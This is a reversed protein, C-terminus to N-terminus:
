NRLPNQLGSQIIQQGLASGAGVMDGSRRQQGCASVAQNPPMVLLGHVDMGVDGARRREGTWPNFLWAVAGHYARWQIAHSPYPQEAGTAPDFKMLTEQQHM